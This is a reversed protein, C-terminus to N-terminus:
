IEGRCNKALKAHTLAASADGDRRDQRLLLGRHQPSTQVGEWGRLAAVTMQGVERYRRLTVHVHDLKCRGTPGSLLPCDHTLPLAYLSSLTSQLIVYVFIYTFGFSSLPILMIHWARVRERLCACVRVCVRVCVCEYVCAGVCARM